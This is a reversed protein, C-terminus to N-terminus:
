NTEGYAFRYAKEIDALFLNWMTGSQGGNRLVYSPHFVPMLSIDLFPLIEGRIKTITIKKDLLTKTSSAGLSVVLTPQIIEVQQTLLPRCQNIESPEPPRDKKMQFDVTPRCKVINTIYTADERPRGFITEIAITLLKGSRGVFPKGQIDEEKGPGEGVFLIKSEPNGEGFVFKERTSSLPCLTCNIFKHRLKDLKQSKSESM